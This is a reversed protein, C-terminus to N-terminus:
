CPALQNFGELKAIDHATESDKNTARRDAGAALLAEATDSRGLWAAFHLATDGDLDRDDLAAAGDARLLLQM